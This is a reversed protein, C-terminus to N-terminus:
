TLIKYIGHCSIHFSHCSTFSSIHFLCISLYLPFLLIVYHLFHFLHVSPCQRGWGAQGIFLAAGGALWSVFSGLGSARPLQSPAPKERVVNLHEEWRGLGWVRVDGISTNIHYISYETSINSVVVEEWTLSCFLSFRTYYRQIAHTDSTITQLSWNYLM